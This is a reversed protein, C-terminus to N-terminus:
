FVNVLVSGVAVVACLSSVAAWKASTKRAEEIEERAKRLDYRIQERGDELAALVATNVQDSVFAAAETIVRGATLKADAIGKQQASELTKLYEMNKAVLIDVYEDFVLENLTVAILIPDDKAIIVNHSIALEKRIEDYDIM